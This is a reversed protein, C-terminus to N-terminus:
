PVVRASSSLLAARLAAPFVVRGGARAGGEFSSVRHQSSDAQHEAAEHDHDGAAAANDIGGGFPAIVIMVRPSLVVVARMMVVVALVFMV